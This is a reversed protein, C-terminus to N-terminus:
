LKVDIANLLFLSETVCIQVLCELNLCGRGANTGDFEGRWKGVPGAGPCTTHNERKQQLVHGSGHFHLFRLFPADIQGLHYRKKGSPLPHYLHFLVLQFILDYWRAFELQLPLFHVCFIVM